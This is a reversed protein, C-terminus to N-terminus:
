KVLSYTFNEQDPKIHCSDSTMSHTTTVTLASVDIPQSAAFPSVVNVYVSEREDCAGQGEQFLIKAAQYGKTQTSLSYTGALNGGVVVMELVTGNLQYTASELCIQAPVNKPTVQDAQYCTEAHATVFTFLPILTVIIKKM